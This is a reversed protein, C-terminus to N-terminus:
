YEENAAVLGVFSNGNLVPSTNRGNVTSVISFGFFFEELENKIEATMNEVTLTLGSKTAKAIAVIGYHNLTKAISAANLTTNSNTM